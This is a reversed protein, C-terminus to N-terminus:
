AKAVASRAGLVPAVVGAARGLGGAIDGTEAIGEGIGAAMPGLVPLMTAGAHGAAEVYRGERVADVAKRGQDFQAGILAKGTEIPSSVARALGTIATVPNLSEWAGSAFRGAASGQPAPRRDTFDDPSAPKRPAGMRSVIGRLQAASPMSPADIEFTQGNAQIEYRPM